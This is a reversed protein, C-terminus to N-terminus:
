KFKNSEYEERSLFPYMDDIPPSVIKGDALVKSSLKPEFNQEPDLMVECIMPGESVLFTEIAAAIGDIHEIRIYPVDYAYSLKELNPFSIGNDESVGVLPPKFLNNQTQRISHYGNNNLIIIKMNLQNYVVTQMEQINMQFSGDGDLCIVRKGKVGVAAGLAAPFGYGMSACGSNTFLRQGKKIKAAQFAVVCATGNGAIVYDEEELKDFLEDMFVYPNIPSKREYYSPLVAPYKANVQRCWSLWEEHQTFDKACVAHNLASMVDKVNAHIPLDPSITPKKLENADIDVIMKYAHQAFTKYNYSIQRINLRSGLVFLVDSNEVIFNGGRTGVTGPRGCFLRHEDWLLDHSNWATVVPINLKDILELFEAYADGLRVGSGALIVPRAAYKLKEIIVDTLTDDYGPNEQMGSEVPEFGTLQDVEVLSAQIDLPIDLWVPGGRGNQCLFWAKELHYKIEQADTIMHAYKTMTQVCDVINFEQDGLQRLPVDTSWITTERKVQGSVIFMPISDLWGGLVGTLTNTGGPGSTVCIPAIKGTLRTYGEAAIASGQEHHNYICTLDPHHGLSDNLHMAGGGTITFIHEVGKNVFFDAIYDSVKIKM